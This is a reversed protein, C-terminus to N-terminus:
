KGQRQRLNYASPLLVTTGSVDAQPASANDEWPIPSLVTTGAVVSSAGDNSRSFTRPPPPTDPRRQTLVTTGSSYASMDILDPTPQRRRAPPRAREFMPPQRLRRSQETYGVMTSIVLVICIIVFVVGAVTTAQDQVGNVFVMGAAAYKIFCSGSAVYSVDVGAVGECYVDAKALRCGYAMDGSCRWQTDHGRALNTCVITRASCDRCNGAICEIQLQHTGANSTALKGQVGVVTAIDVLRIPSHAAASLVSLVSLAVLLCVMTTIFIVTSLPMPRECLFLLYTKEDRQTQRQSLSVEM